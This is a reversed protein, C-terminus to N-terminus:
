PGASKARALYHDRIPKGYDTPKGTKYDKILALCKGPGDFKSAVYWWWALYSVGHQDAWDMYSTNYASGCHPPNKSIDQGFEGTVVPVQAAVPAVYDDWCEAHCFYGKPNDAGYNHFSAIIQPGRPTNLPDNPEFELWKSLDDSYDLGGVMLPNDAGAERVTDVLTQMGVVTGKKKTAGTKVNKLSLPCGGDRLCKWGIGKPENFLDFIVGDAGGFTEAMSRWFDVSHSTDPGGLQGDALVTGPASWHLDLIVIMGADRLNQVYQEVAGRYKTRLKAGAVQAAHGHLRKVHDSFRKVPNIGLWCDENLPIRVTNIGWSQMAQISDPGISNTHTGNRYSPGYIPSVCTYEFSARNVGRLQIPATLLDVIQNGHVHVGVPGDARASPALAATAALVAGIILRTRRM